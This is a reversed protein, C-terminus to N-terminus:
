GVCVCVCQSVRSLFLALFLPRLFIRLLQLATKSTKQDPLSPITCTDHHEHVRINVLSGRGESRLEDVCETHVPLLLITAYSFTPKGPCKLM